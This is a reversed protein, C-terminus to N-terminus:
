TPSTSTSPAREPSHPRAHALPPRHRLPGDRRRLRTDLHHAPRGRGTRPRHPRPRAVGPPRRRGTTAHSQVGRGQQVRRRLSRRRPRDPGRVRHHRRAGRRPPVDDGPRPALRRRRGVHDPERRLDRIGRRPLLGHPGDQVLFTGGLCTIVSTFDGEWGIASATGGAGTFADTTLNFDCRYAPAPGGPSAASAASGPAPSSTPPADRRCGGIGHTRSEVTRTRIGHHTGPRSGAVRRVPGPHDPAAPSPRGRRHGPGHRPAAQARTPVPLLRVHASGVGSPATLWCGRPRRDAPESRRGGMSGDFGADGFSFVGGDAAVLWYGRGDSRPRWGSSPRTSTSAAWRVTSAPTASASCGATPPSSGTAAATPRPRWVSSPRTSTSAAWRGDFFGADGFSFVGGDAAVLWYGGGDPTAAIGVIPADLHKGGMSGFFGAHGFSFVGGDAAVLWYGGGDPMTRWASSPPTSVHTVWRASSAPTVSASCGATPRSWRIAAATPRRRWASSPRMSDLTM